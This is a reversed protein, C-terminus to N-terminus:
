LVTRVRYTLEVHSEAPLKLHWEVTNSAIKKHPQSDSIMTWDGPIPERIIVTVAEKKANSLSIQHATEFQRINQDSSPIKRFDTQKKEATIDFAHGLKLRVIGKKPTHQINDEGVFHLDGKSDQQYARIIGKPLPTGLRDGTNHFNIFVEVAHNQELHYYSSYYHSHGQLIFNKEVPIQNASMFAIQTSQNDPLTTRDHLTYRHLEFHPENEMDIHMASVSEFERSLRKATPTRVTRAQNVDGAILQLRANHYDIGSQNILTAMGILNAHRDDQDLELIYDAQWSLGHTLYSLQLNQLGKKEITQNNLSIIMAPKDRLNAPIESFALRGPIGTEIRDTFKLIIGGNTTLVIATEKKEEGTVPNTHMVTVSKGTHSELLKQPTLPNLDFHQTIVHIQNPHTSHRIWATEPKIKASVAQWVLHNKGDDFAVRRTDKILALDHQYLSISIETQDDSTVTKENSASAVQALNSTSLMILSIWVSLSNFSIFCFKNRLFKKM